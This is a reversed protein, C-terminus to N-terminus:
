EALWRALVCIAAFNESHQGNGCAASGNRMECQARRKETPNPALYYCSGGPMEGKAILLSQHTIQYGAAGTEYARIDDVFQNSAANRYRHEIVQRGAFFRIQGVDSVLDIEVHAANGIQGSCLFRTFARVVDDM